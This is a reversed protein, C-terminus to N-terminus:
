FVCPVVFHFLIKDYIYKFFLIKILSKKIPKIDTVIILKVARKPAIINGNLFLDWNLHIRLVKIPKPLKNINKCFQTNRLLLQQFV